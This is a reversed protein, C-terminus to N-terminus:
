TPRTANKGSSFEHHLQHGVNPTRGVLCHLVGVVDTGIVLVIEICINRMKFSPSFGSV